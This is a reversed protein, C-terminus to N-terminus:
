SVQFFTGIKERSIVCSQSQKSAGWRYNIKADVSHYSLVHNMKANDSEAFFTPARGFGTLEINLLGNQSTSAIEMPVFGLSLTM